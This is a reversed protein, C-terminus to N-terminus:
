NCWADERSDERCHVEVQSLMRTHPTAMFEEVQAWYAVATLEKSSRRLAHTKKLHTRGALRPAIRRRCHSLVRALSAFQLYRSM